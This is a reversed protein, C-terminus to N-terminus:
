FSFSCCSGQIASDSKVTFAVYLLVSDCHYCCRYHCYNCCDSPHALLDGSLMWPQGCVYRICVHMHCRKHLPVSTQGWRGSGLNADYRHPPKSQRRSTRIPRSPQLVHAMGDADSDASDSITIIVPTQLPAAASAPQASSVLPHIPPEAHQEQKVPLPEPQADEFVAGAVPRVNSARCVM